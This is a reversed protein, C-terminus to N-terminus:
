STVMSPLTKTNVNADCGAHDDDGGAEDYITRTVGNVVEKGKTGTM